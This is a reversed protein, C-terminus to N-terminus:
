IGQYLTSFVIIGLVIQQRKSFINNAKRHRLKQQKNRRDPILFNNYGNMSNFSM